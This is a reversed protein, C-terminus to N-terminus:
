KRSSKIRDLIKKLQIQKQEMDGSLLMWLDQMAPGNRADDLDVIYLSDPRVLINGIHCDGHIRIRKYDINQLQQKVKEILHESISAYSQEVAMPLMNSNLIFERSDIAYSQLTIEPRFEFPKVKGLAHIRGLHQGLKYLCELDDLEPAHGGRRPYLSFRYGQYEFLSKGDIVMPAILPIECAQLSM